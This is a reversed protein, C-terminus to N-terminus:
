SYLDFVLAHMLTFCFRFMQSEFEIFWLLKYFISFVFSVETVDKAITGKEEVM